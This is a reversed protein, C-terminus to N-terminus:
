IERESETNSGKVGVGHNVLDGKIRHLTGPIPMLREENPVKLKKQGGWKEHVGEPLPKKRRATFM